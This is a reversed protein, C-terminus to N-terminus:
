KLASEIVKNADSILTRMESSFLDNNVKEVYKVKLEKLESLSNADIYSNRVLISDADERVSDIVNMANNRDTINIHSKTHTVIKEIDEVGGINGLKKSLVCFKAIKILQTDDLKELDQKSLMNLKSVTEFVSELCHGLLTEKRRLLAFCTVLTLLSSSVAVGAIIMLLSKDLQHGMLKRGQVHAVGRNGLISSSMIKKLIIYLKAVNYEIKYVM